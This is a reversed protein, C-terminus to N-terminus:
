DGPWLGAELGGFESGPQEIFGGGLNVPDQQINEGDDSANKNTSVTCHIKLETQGSTTSGWVLDKLKGINPGTNCYFEHPMAFSKVQANGQSGMDSTAPMQLCYGVIFSAEKPM